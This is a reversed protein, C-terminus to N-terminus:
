VSSFRGTLFASRGRHIPSLAFTRFSIPMSCARLAKRVTTLRQSGENAAVEALLVQLVRAFQTAAKLDCARRLAM